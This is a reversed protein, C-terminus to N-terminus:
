PLPSLSFRAFVLGPRFYEVMDKPYRLCSWFIYHFIPQYWYDYWLVYSHRNEWLEPLKMSSSVIMKQYPHSEWTDVLFKLLSNGQRYCGPFDWFQLLQFRSLLFICLLPGCLSLQVCRILLMDHNLCSISDFCTCCMLTLLLELSFSNLLM